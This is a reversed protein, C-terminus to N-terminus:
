PRSQKMRLDDAIKRYYNTKAIDGKREYYRSLFNAADPPAGLEVAKEYFNIGSATDKQFIYYNGLNVYPLSENPSLLMIEQNLEVARRFNGMGYLVNALRSRTNIAGTDLALSKEYFEVAMPYEAKGEYAMGINFHTMPNDPEFELSKTFYYLATDHNKYIRSYVIGLNRYASSFEPWIEVSREWHRIAERVQPEVFKLVNVPKSLEKNVFKMIENAYLDNGKVSNWLHPM